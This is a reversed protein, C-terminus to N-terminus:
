RPVGRELKVADAIREAARQIARGLAADFVEPKLRRSKNPEIENLLKATTRGWQNEVCASTVDDDFGVITEYSFYLTLGEITVRNQNVTGMNKLNVNM